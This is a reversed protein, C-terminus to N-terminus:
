NRSGNGASIASVVMDHDSADCPVVRSDLTNLDRTHFIFDIRYRWHVGRYRWGWTPEPEAQPAASRYSDILGQDALFRGASLSAVSNFDGALVMPRDPDFQHYFHEIERQRIPETRMFLRWLGRWNERGDPLVPMLHVNGIQVARGQWDIEAALMPWWGHPNAALRVNRLPRTSLMAMGGGAPHNFFAMHPYRDGLRHRLLREIQDTNEQLCLLDAAGASITEVLAEPREQQFRVNLTAVRMPQEPRDEPLRHGAPPGPRSLWIVLWGGAVLLPLLWGLRPIRDSASM